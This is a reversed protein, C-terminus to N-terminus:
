RNQQFYITMKILLNLFNNSIM